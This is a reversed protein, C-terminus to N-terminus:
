AMAEETGIKLVDHAQIGDDTEALEFEVRDNENLSKFGEQDIESYHVFVDDDVDEHEIFGYGKDNSFWQVIGTTRNSM